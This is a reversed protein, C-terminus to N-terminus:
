NNLLAPQLHPQLLLPPVKVLLPQRWLKFWSSCPLFLPLCKFFAPPLALVSSSLALHSQQMQFVAVLFTKEWEQRLFCGQVHQTNTTWCSHRARRGLHPSVLCSLRQAVSITVLVSTDALLPPSLAPAIKTETLSLCITVSRGLTECTPSLQSLDQVLVTLGHVLSQLSRRGAREKPLAGYLHGPKQWPASVGSLM